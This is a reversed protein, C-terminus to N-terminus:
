GELIQGSLAKGLLQIDAASYFVDNKRASLFELQEPSIGILRELAQMIPMSLGTAINLARIPKQQAILLLIAVVQEVSIFDRVHSGDGYIPLKKGVELIRAKALLSAGPIDARQRPGYVNFFRFATVPVEYKKRYWNCWGEALYKSHGYFSCPTAPLGEHCPKTYNGYIAASSAFLVHEVKGRRAYELVNKTGQVNVTLFDFQNECCSVVSSYAALHFIFDAPPLLQWIAADLISGEIFTISSNFSSINEWLGTSLNDLVTVRADAHVLAEVLHSGIFGAGGTVLVRKNRYFNSM